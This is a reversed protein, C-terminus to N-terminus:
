CVEYLLLGAGGQWDMSGLIEILHRAKYGQQGLCIGGFTSLFFSYVKWPGFDTERVDRLSVLGKNGGSIDTRGGRAGDNMNVDTSFKV